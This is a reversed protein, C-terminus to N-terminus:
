NEALRVQIRNYCPGVFIGLREKVQGTTRCIKNNTHSLKCSQSGGILLALTELPRCGFESANFVEFGCKHVPIVGVLNSGIDAINLFVAVWDLIVIVASFSPSM